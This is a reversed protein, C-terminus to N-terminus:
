HFPSSYCYNYVNKAMRGGRRLGGRERVVAWGVAMLQYLIITGVYKPNRWSQLTGIGTHPFTFSTSFTEGEIGLVSLDSAGEAYSRVLSLLMSAWSGVVMAPWLAGQAPEGPWWGRALGESRTGSIGTELLSGM